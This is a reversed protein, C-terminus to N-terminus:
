QVTISEVRSNPTQRAPFSHSGQEPRATGSHKAAVSPATLDVGCFDQKPQTTLVRSQRTEIAVIEAEIQQVMGFTPLWRHRKSPSGTCNLPRWKSSRSPTRKKM